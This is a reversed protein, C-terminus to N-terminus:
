LQESGRRSDHAHDSKKGAKNKEGMEKESKLVKM